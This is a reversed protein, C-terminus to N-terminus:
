NKVSGRVVIGATNPSANECRKAIESFEDPSMDSFRDRQLNNKDRNSPDVKVPQKQNNESYDDIESRLSM